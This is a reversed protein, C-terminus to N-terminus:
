RAAFYAIREGDPSWDAGISDEADAPELLRAPSVVGRSLDITSVYAHRTASRHMAFLAGDAGFAIPRVEPRGIAM